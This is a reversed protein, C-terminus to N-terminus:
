ATILRLGEHDVFDQFDKVNLTALPLDYVLCCAAIWTDNQPRPRGRRVAYASIEGWASVIDDTSHLVPRRSIWNAIRRQQDAGWNRCVSWKTLEGQTIFTIATASDVLQRLLTPPLRRKFSLSAVDTDLIVRSDM